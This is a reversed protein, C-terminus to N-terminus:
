DEFKLNIDIETAATVHIERRYIEGDPTVMKLRHPGAALHLKQPHGDFDDVTGRLKGDIWVETAKPKVNLDLTGSPRGAVIVTSRVPRPKGVVIVTHRRHPHRHARRGVHAWAPLSLALLATTAAILRIRSSFRNM